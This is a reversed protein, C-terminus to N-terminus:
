KQLEQQQSLANLLSVRASILSRFVRQSESEIDTIWDELDRMKKMEIRTEEKGKKKLERLNESGIERFEKIGKEEEASKKMKKSVRDLGTWTWVKRTGFSEAIGNFVALSVTMTVRIVEEIVAALDPTVGGQGQVTIKPKKQVTSVLKAMQRALRKRSKVYLAIKEQDRRRMAVQAASHEEKLTLILTQFIGYVDVFRLFHELLKDIWHHHRRLSEQTQPLNLIDDLHNHVTKLRSLGDCIWAATRPDSNLSWSNLNAIEDKLQFILPHSRCPLSISRVHHSLSPKAPTKNPFSFSRRFVGVM